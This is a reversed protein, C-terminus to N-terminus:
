ASPSTKAGSPAKQTLFGSGGEAGSLSGAAGHTGKLAKRGAKAHETNGTRAQRQRLQRTARLASDAARPADPVGRDRTCKEDRIIGSVRPLFDERPCVKVETTKVNLAKEM